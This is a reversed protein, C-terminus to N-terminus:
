KKKAGGPAKAPDQPQVAAAVAAFLAAALVLLARRFTRTRVM